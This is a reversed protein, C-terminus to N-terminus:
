GAPGGGVLALTTPHFTRIPGIVDVAETVAVDDPDNCRAPRAAGATAPGRGTPPRRTAAPRRRVPQGRGARRGRRPGERWLVQGDADTMIM